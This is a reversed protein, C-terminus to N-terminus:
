VEKYFIEKANEIFDSLKNFIQDDKGSVMWEAFCTGDECGNNILIFLSATNDQNSLTISVQAENAIRNIADYFGSIPAQIEEESSSVSNISYGIECLSGLIHVIFCIENKQEATYEKGKLFEEVTAFEKKMSM